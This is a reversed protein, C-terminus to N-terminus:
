MTYGTPLGRLLPPIDRPRIDSVVAVDGLRVLTVVGAVATLLRGPRGGPLPRPLRPLPLGERVAAAAAATM